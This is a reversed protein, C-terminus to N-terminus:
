FIQYFSNISHILYMFWPPLAIQHNLYVHWYMFCLMIGPWGILDPPDANAQWPHPYGLTEVQAWVLESICLVACWSRTWWGCSPCLFPRFWWSLINSPILHTLITNPGMYIRDLMWLFIPFTPILHSSIANPGMWSKWPIQFGSHLYAECQDM